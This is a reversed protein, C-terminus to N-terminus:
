RDLRLNAFIRVQNDVSVKFSKLSSENYTDQASMFSQVGNM